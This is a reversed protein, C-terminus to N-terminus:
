VFPFPPSREKPTDPLGSSEFALIDFSLPHFLTQGAILVPKQTNGSKFAKVTKVTNISSKQLNVEFNNTGTDSDSHPHHEEGQRPNASDHNILDVFGNLEPSHFHGEHHHPSLESQHTHTNGPHFHFFPLGVLLCVLSFILGYKRKLFRTM